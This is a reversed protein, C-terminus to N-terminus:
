CGRTHTYSLTLENNGTGNKTRKLEDSPYTHKPRLGAAPSLKTLRMTSFRIYENTICRTQASFM